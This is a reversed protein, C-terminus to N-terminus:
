GRGRDATITYNVAGVPCLLVADVLSVAISTIGVALSSNFSAGVVGGIVPVSGASSQVSVVVYPWATTVSYDPVSDNYAGAITGPRTTISIVGM